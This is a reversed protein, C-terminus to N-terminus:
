CVSSGALWRTIPVVPSRRGICANMCEHMCAFMTLITFGHLIMAPVLLWWSFSAASILMGTSGMVSLHLGLRLFGYAASRLSLSRILSIDLVNRGPLAATGMDVSEVVSGAEAAEASM